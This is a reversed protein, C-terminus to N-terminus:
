ASLGLLRIVRDFKAPPISKTLGDAANEESKLYTPLIQKAAVAYQVFHYRLEIHKVKRLGEKAWAITSQNDQYVTTPKSGPCQGVECLLNRLYLAQKAGDFLAMYEAECSSAAPSRQMRSKWHVLHRGLFSVVGTRSCRTEPNTAWDADVHMILEPPELGGCKQYVLGRELSGKLYRLVRKVGEWHVPRPDQVNKSLLSMAVAIDPRTRVSLYLLAGVAERYPKGIMKQKESESVLHSGSLEKQNCVPTPAPKCDTMGFRHLVQETYAKQSLKIGDATKSVKVGLFYEVEGLDKLNFTESLFRKTREMQEETTAIILIDDVYVLVLIPSSRTGGVYLCEETELSAFGKSTMIGSLKSYWQKPAQRLGYLSHRLKCVQGDNPNYGEPLRMYIDESLDGYLFASKVDVHHVIMSRYSAISLAVRVATFDVVPAYTEFFDMGPRQLNGLLVLRAKYRTIKGSSDRKRKLVFKSPFVKAGQPAKTVEWTNANRLSEFEEAIAIEWEQSNISKLAKKLTPADGDAEMETTHMHCNDKPSAQPLGHEAETCSSASLVRATSARWWASPRRRIRVPYRSSQGQTSNSTNGSAENDDGFHNGGDESEDDDDPQDAISTDPLLLKM